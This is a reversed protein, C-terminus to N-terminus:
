IAAAATSSRWPTAPAPSWPRATWISATTAIPLISGSTRQQHHVHTIGESANLVRFKVHDRMYSHYVNSPDDPYFAKTAKKKALPQQPPPAPFTVALTATGNCDELMITYINGGSDAVTWREGKTM